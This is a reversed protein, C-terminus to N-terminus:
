PRPGYGAPEPRSPRPSPGAPAPVAASPGPPLPGARRLRATSRAPARLRRREAAGVVTGVLLLVLISGFELFRLDATFGTVLWMTAAIAVIVAFEGGLLGDEDRLTRVADRLARALLVVVGVWLALGVLGLEAAIGLENFHSVIGYGRIWPVDPSWQQHHYTNVEAFTGIGWGAFPKEGIAWLATAIMNLRDQIEYSSTVGGATRDSSLLTSLNALAGVMVVGLVGLYVRRDRPLFLAGLVVALLFILWVVRTYTLYIAYLSVVALIRLAIRQWRPTGVQRALFLALVFGLVLLVGNAVPQSFVGVARNSWSNSAPIELIYRPWVLAPLHFQAVSVWISYAWCGLVVWLVRRVAAPRDIVFRGVVYVVFPMLTGAAIFHYVSYTDDISQAGGAEYPHPAIASAISWLVFLGMAAEVPGLSPARSVRRTVALAGALVVIAMAVFMAEVPLPLGKLAPRLFATVLLVGVALVPRNLAYLVLAGGIGLGVMAIGPGLPGDILGGAVYVGALVALLIAAALLPSGRRGAREGARPARDAAGDGAPHAVPVGAGPAAPAVTRLDPM